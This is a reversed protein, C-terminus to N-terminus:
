PQTGGSVTCTTGILVGSVTTGKTTSPWVFHGKLNIIGLYMIFIKDRGYFNVAGSVSAPM